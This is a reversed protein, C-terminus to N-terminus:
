ELYPEVIDEEIEEAQAARVDFKLVPMVLTSFKLVPKYMFADAREEETIIQFSRDIRDVFLLFISAIFLYKLGGFFGGLLKTYLTQPASSIQKLVSLAVWNAGFLIPGYMVAFAIVPLNRLPVASKDVLVNYFGMSLKGAIFVGALLAFLAITQVIFGQKYGKYIGWILTVVILFNFLSFHLNVDM